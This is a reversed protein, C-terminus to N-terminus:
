TQPRVLRRLRYRGAEVVVFAERLAEEPHNELVRKLQEHTKGVDSPAIRLYIVGPGQGALFVLGGFHRDRTLLLRGDRAAARLVQEDDAQTLGAERARVVDHGWAEVARVTSEYVDEDSLFRM